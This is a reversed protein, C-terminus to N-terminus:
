KMDITGSTKRFKKSLLIGLFVSTCLLVFFSCWKSCIRQGGKCRINSSHWGTERWTLKWLLREETLFLSFSAIHEWRIWAASLTGRFNFNWKRLKGYKMALNWIDYRDLLLEWYLSWRPIRQFVSIGTVLFTHIHETLKRKTLSTFPNQTSLLLTDINKSNVSNNTNDNNNLGLFNWWVLKVTPLRQLFSSNVHNRAVNKIHFAATVVKVVPLIQILLPWWSWTPIKIIKFVERHYWKRGQTM